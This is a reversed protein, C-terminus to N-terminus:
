FKRLPEYHFAAVAVTAITIAKDTNPTINNSSNCSNKQSNSLIILIVLQQRHHVSHQHQNILVAIVHSVIPHCQCAEEYRHLRATTSFYIIIRPTTITVADEEPPLSYRYRRVDGRLQRQSILLRIMQMNTNILYRLVDSITGSSISISTSIGIVALM